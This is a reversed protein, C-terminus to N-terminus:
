NGFYDSNKSVLAAGIRERVENLLTIVQDHTTDPDNNFTIISRSSREGTHAATEYVIDWTVAHMGPSKGSVNRAVESVACGLSFSDADEPCPGGRDEPNWTRQESLLEIVGDIIALDYEDYLFEARSCDDCEIDPVDKGKAIAAVWQHLPNGDVHYRYFYEQQLVTHRFGGITYSRFEPIESQILGRYRRLLIHVDPEDIGIREVYFYQTNDYAHDVQYLRLNPATQVAKIYLGEVGLGGPIDEWGPHARLVDPIGWRGADGGAAIESGYSGADDGLGAVQADQYHQALLNSYFPVALSGASSGGVFIREIDDFNSYIWELVAKVNTIGRHRITFGDHKGDETELVYTTDRDGLHVDGTCVPIGIMSYESFPNDPNELDFIGHLRDPHREPRIYQTYITSGEVCGDADWCAGGGYFYVLLKGTHAARVYFEFGTGHACTTEGGPKMTNWGEDLEDLAPMHINQETNVEQAFIAAPLSVLCITTVIGTIYRSVIRSM